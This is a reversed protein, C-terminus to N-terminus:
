VMVEEERAGWGVSLPFDRPVNFSCLVSYSLNFVPRSTHFALPAQGSNSAHHDWHFVGHYRLALIRAFLLTAAFFAHCAAIRQFSCCSNVQSSHSPVKWLSHVSSSATASRSLFNGPSGSLSAETTHSSPKLVSKLILHRHSKAKGSGVPPGSNIGALFSAVVRFIGASCLPGTEM